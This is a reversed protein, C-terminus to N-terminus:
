FISANIFKCKLLAPNSNVLLIWKEILDIFFIASLFDCIVLAVKIIAINKKEYEFKYVV